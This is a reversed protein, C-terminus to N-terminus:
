SQVVEYLPREPWCLRCPGIVAQRWDAHTRGGAALTLLRQMAARRGASNSNLKLSALTMRGKPRGAGYCGNFPCAPPRCLPSSISPRPVRTRCDLTVPPRRNGPSSFSMAPTRSCSIISFVRVCKPDCAPAGGRAAARMCVCCAAQHQAAAGPGPRRHRAVGLVSLVSLGSRGCAFRM